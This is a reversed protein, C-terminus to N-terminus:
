VAIGLIAALLLYLGYPLEKPKGEQEKKERERRVWIPEEDVPTTANETPGDSDTARLVLPRRATRAVGGAASQVAKRVPRAAVCAVTRPRLVVPRIVGTFTKCSIVSHTAM